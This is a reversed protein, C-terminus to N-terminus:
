THCRRRAPHSPVEGEHEVLVQESFADRETLTAADAAAGGFILGLAPLLDERSVVVVPM